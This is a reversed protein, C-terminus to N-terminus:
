VRRCSRSSALLRLQAVIEARVRANEASGLPHPRGNALLRRLVAKARAGSFETAPADLPKTVPTRYAALTALWLAAVLLLALWLACAPKWSHM